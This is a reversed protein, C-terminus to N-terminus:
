ETKNKFNATIRILNLASLMVLFIIVLFPLGEIQFLEIKDIQTTVAHVYRINEKYDLSYGPKNHLIRVKYSGNEIPGFKKYYFKQGNEEIIEPAVNMFLVQKTIKISLNGESPVYFQGDEDLIQFKISFGHQNPLYIPDGCKKTKEDCISYNQIRLVQAEFRLWNILNRFFSINDGDSEADLQNSFMKFSGAILLRAQNTNGQAGAVLSMKNSDLLQKAGNETVFLANEPAELLSWSVHNEYPTLTVAGGEYVLGKKIGKALKPHQINARDIFVRKSQSSTQVGNYGSRSGEVTTADFGYQSLLVRWNQVVFADSLFLIGNGEDYFKMLELKEALTMVENARPLVVIVIDYIPKKYIYASHRSTPSTVSEIRVEGFKARVVALMKSYLVDFNKINHVVLAKNVKDHMGSVGAAVLFTLLLWKM